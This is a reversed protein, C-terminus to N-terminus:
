QAAGPGPRSYPRGGHPQEGPYHPQPQPQPQPPVQPDYPQQPQQAYPQPAPQGPPYQAAGPQPPPGAAPAGTPAAQAPATQAPATWLAEYSQQLDTVVKRVSRVLMSKDVRGRRRGALQQAGAADEAVVGIVRAGSNSAVLMHNVQNAVKAGDQAGGVLLVGIIPLGAQGVRQTGHLKTSLAAARDRVRALHEAETGSVLLVMSAHSLLELVASDPGLRGCDAIVDAVGDPNPSEALRAFARGLTGWQGNLGVSQEATGLGILVDLGGSLRQSHDWLQEAALGRRATAALSLMGTGPDLTGGNPSSSRYVLDGGAMDVEALLSRRPWMAALAVATTTVGPSGKDAALAILAM